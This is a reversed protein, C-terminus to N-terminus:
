GGVLGEVQSTAVGAELQDVRAEVEEREDDEVIDEDVRESEEIRFVGQSEAAVALGAGDICGARALVELHVPRVALM